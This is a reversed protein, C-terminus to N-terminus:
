PCSVVMDHVHDTLKFGDDHWIVHISGGTSTSYFPVGADQLADVTEQAPFGFRNDKGCSVLALEPQVEGLLMAPASYRSGHHPMILVPAHLPANREMMRRIGEQEVDGTLLAVVSGHLRVLLVLSRDNSSLKEGDPGPHLVEMNVGRGLGIMDGVIGSRSEINRKALAKNIREGAIGDPRDGNGVFRGVDFQELIWALGAMHDHDAHTMVVVDVRPPRGATMFPGVVARGIDFTRSLIGGGDVLARKGGQATVLLAQGQGVDIMDLRMGSVSDEVMVAVHPLFLLLAGSFALTLRTKRALMAVLLIFFGLAEPWLPRLVALLPDLGLGHCWTLLELLREMVSSAGSLLLKCLSGLGPVVGVIMGLMGLPMVAFGIVPVWILNLLINPSLTGFSISIIPLLAINAAISLCLLAAVSNFIRAVIGVGPIRMFRHLRPFLLAIGGVASVSMLLGTDFLALPYLLLIILLAFFLGDLLVRTRGALLLIGWCCFMLAARTLSASPQGLWAYIIVLPMALCVALRPRPIKLYVSPCIWGVAYALVVGMLAVYGVHLGSLALVHALGASRVMNITDPAIHSRDGTLLNLVVAGGQGRGISASVADHLTHRLSHLPGAPAHGLVVDKKGFSWGLWFVGQRRWYSAYDWLGPNRFGSVRRVRTRVTVKQGSEPLIQPYKWTWALKGPLTHRAGRGDTVVVNELVAQIRMDPKTRVTEVVGSIQMKERPVYWEPVPPSDPLLILSYGFGILACVSLVLLRMRRKRLLFDVLVLSVFAAIAPVPFRLGLIGTAFALLCIQWPLLGPIGM